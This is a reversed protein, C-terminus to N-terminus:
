RPVQTFPTRAQEVRDLRERLDLIVDRASYTSAQGAKLEDIQKQVQALQQDTNRWVREHEARPVLGERIDKIASEMRM